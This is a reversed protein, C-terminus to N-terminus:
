LIDGVAKLDDIESKLALVIIKLDKINNELEIIKDPYVEDISNGILSVTNIKIPEIEFLEPYIMDVSKRIVTINLTEETFYNSPLIFSLTEDFKITKDEIGFKTLKYFWEDQLMSADIIFSFKLEDGNALSVSNENTLTGKNNQLEIIVEKIM